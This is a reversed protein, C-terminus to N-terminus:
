ARHFCTEQSNKWKQTFMSGSFALSCQVHAGLNLLLSFCNQGSHTSTKVQESFPVPIMGNVVHLPEVCPHVDGLHFNQTQFLM